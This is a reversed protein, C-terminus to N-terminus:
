SVRAGARAPVRLLVGLDNVDEVTDLTDVIEHLREAQDEDIVRTSWYRFKRDLEDASLPNKPSGPPFEMRGIFTRGDTSRLVVEAPRALEDANKVTDMEADGRTTVRQQLAHLVPDAQRQESYQEWTVEGDLVAAAMIYELNINLTARQTLLRQELTPLKVVLSDIDVASLGQERMIDLTVAIASHTPSGSAYRKFRAALIEFREGLEVTLESPRAADPAFAEFISHPQDLVADVGGYGLRALDAAVVGNRSGVGMHFSKNMHGRETRITQLGCAQDAALGLAARLQSEGLRLVKGAAAAAALSGAVSSQHFNRPALVDLSLGAKALRGAVDYGVILALLLERGTCHEREGVALVAPLLVACAHGFRPLSGDIEDGHGLIGNVLAAHEVSSKFDAGIVTADGRAGAQRAFEIAIRGHELESCALQCALQDLVVAKAREIVPGPVDDFGIREVYRALTATVGVGDDEGQSVSESGLESM